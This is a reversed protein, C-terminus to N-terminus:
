PREPAEAKPIPTVMNEIGNFSAKIREKFLCFIVLTFSVAFIIGAILAIIAVANIGTVEEIEGTLADCM